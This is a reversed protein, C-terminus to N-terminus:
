RRTVQVPRTTTKRIIVRPEAAALREPRKARAVLADVDLAVRTPFDKVAPASPAVAAAPATPIAGAGSLPVVQAQVRPEDGHPVAPLDEAARAENPSFIGGQVGRALAEIRDKQASRLLAETDFETYEDPEGRLNFLRDFSQELHNL